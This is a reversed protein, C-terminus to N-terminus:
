VVETVYWKDVAEPVSLGPRMAFRLRSPM